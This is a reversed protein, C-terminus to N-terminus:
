PADVRRRQICAAAGALVALILLGAGLEMMTSAIPHMADFAARAQTAVDTRGDAAAERYLRLERNMSPMIMVVRWWLMCAAIGISGTWLLRSLPRDRGMGLLWQGAIGIVLLTSLLIQLMDTAAFIPESLLGAALRTQDAADLHAYDALTVQLEPMTSFIGIAAAGATLAAALWLSLCLWCFMSCVTRM